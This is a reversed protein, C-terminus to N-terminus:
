YEIGNIKFFTKGADFMFSQVTMELPFYDQLDHNVNVLAHLPLKIESTAYMEYSTVEMEEGEGSEVLMNIKYCKFGLIEKTDSSDIKTECKTPHLALDYTRYMLKKNIKAHYYLKKDVSTVRFFDGIQKGKQYVSRWISDNQVEIIIETAPTEAYIKHLGTTHSDFVLKSVKLNQATILLPICFLVALLYHKM